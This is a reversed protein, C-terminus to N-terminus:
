CRVPDMRGLMKLTFDANSGRRCWGNSNEFWNLVVILEQRTSTEEATTSLTTLELVYAIITEVRPERQSTSM